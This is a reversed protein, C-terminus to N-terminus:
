WMTEEYSVVKRPTEPNDLRACTVSIGQLTITHTKGIEALTKHFLEEMGQATRMSKMQELEAEMIPRCEEIFAQVEQSEPPLELIRM